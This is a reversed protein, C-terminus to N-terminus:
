RSAPKCAPVRAKTPPSLQLSAAPSKKGRRAKVWAPLRVVPFSAEERIAIRWLVHVAYALLLSVMSLLWGDGPYGMWANLTMYPEYSSEAFPSNTQIFSVDSDNAPPFFLTGLVAIVEVTTCVAKSRLDKLCKTALTMLTFCTALRLMHRRFASEIPLYAEPVFPLFILSPYLLTVFVRLLVRKLNKPKRQPTATM